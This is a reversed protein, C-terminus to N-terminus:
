RAKEKKKAEEARRKANEELRKGEERWQKALIEGLDDVEGLRTLDQGTKVIGVFGICMEDTTAEGWHIPKPPKNPNRPNAASNDYHSVVELVSGKPVDLPDEFLYTFQWGFDWDDIKVLNHVKGDPFRFAMSMDRGITHMHPTASLATVGVPVEWKAKIEQHSEGAPLYMEFNAAFANHLAQKVPKKCLFIGLRTRDTEPKGDPHYHVQIIVDAGKPLSVGIGDPLFHAENGPAWGFLGSHVEVGPGGFCEYGQGPEAEDKKRAAGKIDVFSLVHHVVRRNGPRVEAARVYVDEPLNTKVVFCRYIDSGGAPIQYDAAPELILDPTGLTWDDNFAVPAPADAPNGEPAKAEAWAALTKIEAETLSKDHQYKPGFGPAAKWPPMRREAVVEAIDDARKRAQEYTGLSFPGIQGKRHCEMCRNQLIPLVDAQYTPAAAAKPPDPVPCGVAAAWPEAPDRADLVALIADKLDSKSPHANPKGRAAFRDDIRGRYRVKGTDDLVVAEPTMTVGLRAVIKGDRDCTAPFDLGHEKAHRALEADPVDHDVSVGVWRVSRPLSAVLAKIAPSYENSIPCESSYALIVTAGGKPSTWELTAGDFARARPLTPREPPSAAFAPLGVATLAVALRLCNLFNLKSLIRPM